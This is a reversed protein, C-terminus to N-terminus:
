INKYFDISEGSALTVIAKKKNPSKGQIYGAKTFRVRKKGAHVLTRVSDVKVEYMAEIAKRIQPKTADMDVLFAYQKHDDKEGLITMKETNVPKKLVSM